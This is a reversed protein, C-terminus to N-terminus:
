LIGMFLFSLFLWLLYSSIIALLKGLRLFSVSIWTWFASLTGLLTFGFFAM